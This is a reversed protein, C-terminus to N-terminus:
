TLENALQLLLAGKPAPDPVIQHVTDIEYRRWDAGQARQWSKELAMQM